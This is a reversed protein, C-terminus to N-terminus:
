TKLSEVERNLGDLDKTWGDSADSAFVAIEALLKSPRETGDREVDGLAVPALATM